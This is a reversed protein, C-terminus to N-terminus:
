FRGFILWSQRVSVLLLDLASAFVNEEVLILALITGLACITSHACDRVILCWIEGLWVIFSISLFRWCLLPSIWAFSIIFIFLLVESVQILLQSFDVVSKVVM